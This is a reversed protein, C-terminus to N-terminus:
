QIVKKGNKIVIGKYSKGVQQGALNYIKANANSVVDARVSSVGAAIYAKTAIVVDALLTYKAGKEGTFYVQKVSSKGTENLDVSLTQNEGAEFEVETSTGNNYEVVFKGAETASFNVVLQEFDSYDVKDLWWGGGGNTVNEADNGVITITHTSADYESNWGSSNFGSMTLKTSTPKNGALAEEYEDDYGVYAAEVEITGVEEGQIWFQKVDNSFADPLKIGVIKTGSVAELEVKDPVEKTGFEVCFKFKCSVDKFTVWLYDYDSADMHNLWNGAGGWGQLFTLKNGDVICKETGWSSFALGLTEAAFSSAALMLGCVLTFLKKM